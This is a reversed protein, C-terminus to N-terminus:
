TLAGFPASSCDTVNNELRHASLQGMLLKNSAQSATAGYVDAPRSRSKQM